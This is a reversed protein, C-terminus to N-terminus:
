FKKGKTIAAIWTDLRLFELIKGLSVHHLDSMRVSHILFYLYLHAKKVERLRPLLLIQGASHIRSILPFLQLDHIIESLNKENERNITENCM